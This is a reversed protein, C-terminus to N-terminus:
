VEGWHQAALSVIWLWYEPDQRLSRTDTREVKPKRTLRQRSYIVMGARIAYKLLQRAYETGVGVKAGAVALTDGEIVSRAVLLSKRKKEM